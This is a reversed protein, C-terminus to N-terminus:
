KVKSHIVCMCKTNQYTHYASASKQLKIFLAYADTKNINESPLESSCYVM